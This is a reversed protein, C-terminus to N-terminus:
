FHFNAGISIQNSDADTNTDFGHLYQAKVSVDDNVAFEVGGGLLLDGRSSGGLDHGYGAAAYLLVDDTLVVGARGVISGYTTDLNEDTLGELTVEGGVLFFDFQANVGAAIGIGAQTEGSGSRQATGFVGAYFGSWDYGASAPSAVPVSGAGSEVPVTILDSARAGVSGALSALMATGAILLPRTARARKMVQPEM